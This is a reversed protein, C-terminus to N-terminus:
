KVLHYASWKYEEGQEWKQAMWEMCWVPDKAQEPAVSPWSPAHIQCTGFSPERTGDKQIVESQGDVVTFGKSEIRLTEVFKYVNLKHRIATETALRELADPTWESVELEHAEAVKAFASIPDPPPACWALVAICL